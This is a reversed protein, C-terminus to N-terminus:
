IAPLYQTMVSLEGYKGGLLEQLQRACVADPRDVRVPYQPKKTYTFV